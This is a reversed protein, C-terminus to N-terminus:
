SEINKWCDNCRENMCDDCYYKHCDPCKEKCRDLSNCGNCFNSEDLPDVGTLKVMDCYNECIREFLQNSITRVEVSPERNPEYLVYIVQWRDKQQTFILEPVGISCEDLFM